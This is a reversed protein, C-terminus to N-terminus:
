VRRCASSSHNRDYSSTWNGPQDLLESGPYTLSLKVMLYMYYESAVYLLKTIGPV